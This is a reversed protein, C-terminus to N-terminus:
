ITGSANTDAWERTIRQDIDVALLVAVDGDGCPAAAINWATDFHERIYGGRYGPCISRHCGHGPLLSQETTQPNMLSTDLVTGLRGIPDSIPTPNPEEHNGGIVPLMKVGLVSARLHV